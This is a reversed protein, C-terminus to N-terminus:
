SSVFGLSVFGLCYLFFRRRRKFANKSRRRKKITILFSNHRRDDHAGIVDTEVPFAHAHRDFEHVLAFSVDHRYSISFFLTQTKRNERTINKTKKKRRSGGKQHSLSFQFRNPFFRHIFSAIFRPAKFVVLLSLHDRKRLPRFDDSKKKEHAVRRGRRRTRM